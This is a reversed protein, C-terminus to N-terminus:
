LLRARMWCSQDHFDEIKLPSTSSLVPTKSNQTYDYRCFSFEWVDSAKLPALGLKEVQIHVSVRWEGKERDIKVESEVVPEKILWESCIGLERQQYFVERSPLRYQFLQNNPNVHFEYYPDLGAPKFFMEFVDGKLFAPENFVTVPNFIERDSLVAEIVFGEPAWGMRVEGPMFDSELGTKWAQQFQLCEGEIGCGSGEVNQLSDVRYCSLSHSTM